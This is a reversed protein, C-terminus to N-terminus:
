KANEKGAETVKRSAAEIKDMASDDQLSWWHRLGKAYEIEEPTTEIPPGKVQDLVQEGNPKSVAWSSSDESRVGFGRGKMSVVKVRRLLVVDGAEVEPLSALHPRFIHAVRVQTPATSPDTLSLTLMFDRPGHKPRHPHPPTQTAVALVDTMKDISNRSLMKLSLFDPLNTRLSKLLQLKLTKVNEEEPVTATSGAISPSKLSAFSANPSDDRQQFSRSVSRTERRPTERKPDPTKHSRTQRTTPSSGKALLISPDGHDNRPRLVRQSGPSSNEVSVISEDDTAKRKRRNKGEAQASGGALQISPDDRNTKSRTKSGSGAPSSQKSGSDATKAVPTATILAISPDEQDLHESSKTSKHRRSRLPKAVISESAPEANRSATEHPEDALKTRPPSKVQSKAPSSTISNKSRITDQQTPSHQLIETMIQDEPGADDEDAENGTTTNLADVVEVEIVQQTEGPTPLHDGHENNSLLDNHDQFTQTQSAETPPPSMQGDKASKDTNAEGTKDTNGMNDVPDAPQSDPETTIEMSADQMITDHSEVPELGRSGSTEVVQDDPTAGVSGEFLGGVTPVDSPEVGDALTEHPQTLSEEQALVVENSASARQSVETITGRIEESVVISTDITEVVAIEMPEAADERPVESPADVDMVETSQEVVISHTDDPPNTGTPEEQSAVDEKEPVKSEEVLAPAQNMDIDRSEAEVPSPEEPEFEQEHQPSGETMSLQAEASSDESPQEGEVVEKPHSPGNNKDGESVTATHTVDIGPTASVQEQEDESQIKQENEVDKMEAAQDTEKKDPSSPQQEARSQFLSQSDEESMEEDPKTDEIEEKSEPVPLSKAEEPQEPEKTPELEQEGESARAVEPEPAPKPEPKAAPEDDESDSLLSIFVPEQSTPAASPRPEADEDEEEEDDYYGEEDSYYEGEADGESGDYEEGEGEYRQEYMEEEYEDPAEDIDGEEENEVDEDIDTDDEEPNMIQTDPDDNNVDPEEESTEVDDDDDHTRSYKRLDYDDGLEDGGDRYHEAESAPQELAPEPSVDATTNRDTNEMSPSSQRDESSERSGQERFPSSSLIEMPNEADASAAASHPESPMETTWASQSPQTIATFSSGPAPETGFPNQHTATPHNIPSEHAALNAQTDVTNSLQDADLFEAPYDEARPARSPSDPGANHVHEAPFFSPAQPFLMTQPTFSFAMETDMDGPAQGLLDSHPGHQIDHPTTSAQFPQNTFSEDTGFPRTRPLPTPTSQTFGFTPRSEALVQVSAMPTFDVNVTQCGQDIMAPRPPTAMPTDEVDDNQQSVGNAQPAAEDEEEPVDDPEPSPSQSTYRWTNAPLSFRTRKKSKTTKTVDEDFMDLGGEFLSGYSVRARKLFAPSAYEHPDLTSAANRKAPLITEPSQPTPTAPEPIPTVTDVTDTSEIQGNATPEPEEVPADINLLTEQESEARRISIMLRNTFELQWALTSGAVQTHTENKEWKVGQLSVRIDDGAGLSADAIAKAAAGHFRIRVQGNERRLRFDREALLFAISKNLISFPWTITITGDVVRKEQDSVDPDLQAIPTPDGQQLLSNTPQADTM